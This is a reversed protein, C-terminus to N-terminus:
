AEQRDTLHAGGNTILVQKRGESRMLDAVQWSELLREIEEPDHEDLFQRSLVAM